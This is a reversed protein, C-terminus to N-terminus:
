ADVAHQVLRIFADCQASSMAHLEIRHGDTDALRLTVGREHRAVAVDGSARNRAALERTPDIDGCPMRQYIRVTIPTIALIVSRPTCRAHHPVAVCSFPCVGLIPEALMLTLASRWRRALIETQEDQDRPNASGTVTAM